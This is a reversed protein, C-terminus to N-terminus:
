IAIKFVLAYFEVQYSLSSSKICCVEESNKLPEKQSVIQAKYSIHKSEM